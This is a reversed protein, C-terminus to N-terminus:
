KPGAVVASLSPVADFPATVPEVVSNDHVLAGATGVFFSQGDAVQLNFVPQAQDSEVAVVQALGGLTRLTDGPKLQRAMVWGTGSRWFRHITTAVVSESGLDIRLTESPRNHFGAVVPQYTLAGSATNQSLVQDGVQITEIARTGGLTHV